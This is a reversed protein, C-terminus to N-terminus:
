WCYIWVICYIKYTRQYHLAFFFHVVHVRVHARIIMCYFKAQMCKYLYIARLLRFKLFFFRYAISNNSSTLPNENMWFHHLYSNIYIQSSSTKKFLMKKYRFFQLLNSPISFTNWNISNALKLYDVWVLAIPSWM